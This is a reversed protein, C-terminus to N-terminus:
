QNKKRLTEAAKEIEESVNRWASDRNDWLDVAKGDKPVAQLKGFPAKKWNCDRIIVPIVRAEGKKHREMARKMEVDYCFDSDIFNASILLLIIDANELRETIEERWGEGAEIERDNWGQIIGQRQLLSLHTKLEKRYSEDIHSYSYFLNLPRLDKEKYRPLDVGSLLESVKYTELEEGVVKEIEKKGKNEMVLLDKYLIIEDPLGPLPVLEQPNLNKIDRHIREFDSRIIALLRRRSDASEGTISIYVRKEAIDAKVLARCGEFTLIVGSRWRPEDISLHHTRTIFRPLLGEPLIPYLYQFNLCESLEFEAAEDPENKSLLEPVLYCTDKEPFSFCLDFKKMLDFIFRCMFAPYEEESLIGSVSELHIEGKAEELSKSNLIKYIGNTVWHPNLIHTDKLRPDNRYNLVIGLQNLYRALMEQHKLIGINNESCLERYQEFSLFNKKTTALEDKVSFWEGPFKVRLEDLLDTQEVISAKLEDIGIGKGGCDTRVFGKINPYKKLLASRNLDFAHESIKNLVIIVPSNAGFSEILRLWYEAEADEQGERGTLVLLYLSRETLFFQHTAHMIEQGGFDWVNLRIKDGKIELPWQEINIGETKAEDPAFINHILKKALSTKGVAGKGVLILKAENLPRGNAQTRFYYELIDSPIAPVGGELNVESHHAGLLETPLGLAPNGHLYLVELLSLQKLTDPIATLQNSSLYLQRLNSLNGLADPVTSLQNNNLVLVQLYSLKGFTDPITTLQNHNLHLKQLDSLNGLTDPIVTLQNDRLDLNQLNSLNGLADPVSTLQNNVLWLLQLNSLRGLADPIATLQNSNLDLERLKTFDGFADPIATLRNGNLELEQLKTFGSFADPIATLRNYALNLRQLQALEFLERPLETLDLGSLDLNDSNEDAAEKIRQLAEWYSGQSM